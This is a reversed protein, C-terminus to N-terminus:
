AITQHHARWFLMAIGNSIVRWIPALPAFIAYIFFYWYSVPSLVIYTIKQPFSFHPYEMICVVLWITMASLYTILFLPQAAAFAVYTIYTVLAANAVFILWRVLHYMRSRWLHISLQSRQLVPWLQHSNPPIAFATRLSIFPALAVAHYLRFLESIKQPSPLVPKIETYSWTPFNTLITVSRRIAAHDLMMNHRITLIFKGNTHEGSFVIEYNHYDNHRISELCANSVNEDVVVSVLPWTHRRKTTRTKNSRIMRIDHLAIGLVIMIGIVIIFIISIIFNSEM